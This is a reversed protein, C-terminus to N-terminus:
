LHGIIAGTVAGIVIGATIGVPGAVARWEAGAEVGEFVVGLYGTM